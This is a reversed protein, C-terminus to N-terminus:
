DQGLLLLGPRIYKILQMAVKRARFITYVYLIRVKIRYICIIYLIPYITNSITCPMGLDPDQVGYPKHVGKDSPCKLFVTPNRHKHPQM